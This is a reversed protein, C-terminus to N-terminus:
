PNVLRQEGSYLNEQAVAVKGRGLNGVSQIKRRWGMEGPKELSKGAHCRFRITMLRKMSTAIAASPVPIGSTASCRQHNKRIKSEMFVSRSMNDSRNDSKEPPLFLAPVATGESSPDYQTAPADEESVLVSEERFRSKHMVAACPCVKAPSPLDFETETRVMLVPRLVDGCVLNVKRTILPPFTISLLRVCGKRVGTKTGSDPTCIGSLYRNEM